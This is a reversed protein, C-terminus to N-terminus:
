WRGDPSRSALVPLGDAPLGSLQDLWQFGGADLDILPELLMAVTQWDYRELSWEFGGATAQAGGGSENSLVFTDTNVLDFCADTALDYRLSSSGSLAQALGHLRAFGTADVGYLRVLPCDPSGEALFEVKLTGIESEM